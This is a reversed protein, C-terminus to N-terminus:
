NHLKSIISRFSRLSRNGIQTKDIRLRPCNEPFNAPNIKNVPDAAEKRNKRAPTRSAIRLDNVAQSVTALPSIAEDAGLDTEFSRGATMTPRVGRPKRLPQAAFSIGTMAEGGTWPTEPAEPQGRWIGISRTM